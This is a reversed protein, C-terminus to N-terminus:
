ASLSLKELPPMDYGRQNLIDCAYAKWVMMRDAALRLDQLELREQPTISGQQKRELLESHRAHHSQSVQWQAIALLQEQSYAQMQGWAEAPEPKVQPLLTLISQVALLEPSSQSQQALEALQQFITESLEVTLRYTSM